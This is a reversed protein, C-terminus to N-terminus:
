THRAAEQVAANVAHFLERVHKPARKAAREARAAELLQRIRHLEAHPFEREFRAMAEADALLDDRWKEAVHFLATQKKSPAELGALQEAIPGADVNRMIKGIYQIQRRRAEHKTIGQCATVAERLNEPMDIRALQERSLEVLAAGVDQLQRMEKKRRTKSIFEDPEDMRVMKGHWVV